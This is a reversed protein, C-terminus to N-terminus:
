AIKFPSYLFFSLPCLSFSQFKLLQNLGILCRDSTGTELFQCLVTDSSTLLMLNSLKSLKCLLKRHCSYKMSYKIHLISEMDSQLMQRTNVNGGLSLVSCYLPHTCKQFLKEQMVDKDPELKIQRPLSGGAAILRQWASMLTGSKSHLVLRQWATHAEAICCLKRKVLPKYMYYMKFTAFRPPEHRCLPPEHRGLTGQWMQCVQDVEAVMVKLEQETPFENLRMM